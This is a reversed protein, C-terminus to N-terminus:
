SNGGSCSLNEEEKVWPIFIRKIQEREDARDVKRQKSLSYRAKRVLLARKQQCERSKEKM